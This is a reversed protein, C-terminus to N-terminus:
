TKHNHSFLVYIFYNHLPWVLHSSLDSYLLHTAVVFMMKEGNEQRFSLKRRIDHGHFNDGM